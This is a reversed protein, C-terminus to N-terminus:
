FGATFSLVGAFGGGVFYTPSSGAIMSGYVGKTPNANMSLGSVGSLFGNNGINMLNFQIQPHKLYLYNRFRYGFNINFTEFSPISQDNIFTSYQKSVYNMNFAGFISGDDYSLGVAVTFKPSKVAVKGASQIYDNGVKLNNDTTAHLYQASVYPSFHHWPRVGLEVQAGRATQGGGNISETVPTGSAYTTTNIQRNTFNYNFLALAVSVLGTHRYGIEEGIAYESKPNVTHSRTQSGSSISYRDAYSMISAPMRFSTTGNIYMQDNPTIKYSMSIQPQPAAESQGNRYNAGPINQTLTRTIMTEKFGATLILRDNLAKYTDNIFLSNTQQILHINYQSLLSGDQTRIAWQGSMSSVQGDPGLAEYLSPEAQDFYSYWYGVALSNGGRKWTINTNIGSYYLKYKDISIASFYSDNKAGTNQLIGARQNGYYSETSSIVTGGNDYGTAYSFYPTTNLSFGHGFNLHVPTGLILTRHLNEQLKYYDSSGKIYKDAYNYNVGYNEWLSKTPARLYYQLPDNYSLVFSYKNGDGWEKMFKGDVHYRRTQGVGRWEDATRASFSLFGRIGTHGIDGTDLRIFERKLSFSGYSFNALGGFKHSPDRLSETLEGGVANYLPSTIDPSGQTLTINQINENDATSSTYPLLYVPAAAPIGEYLYGIETQDLGRVSLGQQDDNTGLPDNGSYVVGPLNAIMSVPNATPSQKAIFDRTIGSRSKAVTQPPMLGGGPTTNTVGTASPADRHVVMNETAHAEVDHHMSASSAQANIPKFVHPVAIKAHHAQRQHTVEAAGAGQISLWTSLTLAVLRGQKKRAQSFLQHRCCQLVFMQASDSMGTGM